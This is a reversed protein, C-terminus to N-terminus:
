GLKNFLARFIRKPLSVKQKASAAVPTTSPEVASVLEILGLAYCASFVSYVARYPVGLTTVTANISTSQNFWLAVIQMAHPAIDKRTFNPWRKLQIVSEASIHHPLWGRSSWLSLNWILERSARPNLRSLRQELFPHQEIVKASFLPQEETNIFSMKHLLTDKTESYVVEGQAMFTINVGGGTIQVPQEQSKALKYAQMFTGQLYSSPTYHLEASKAPDLYEQDARTGYFWQMSRKEEYADSTHENSGKSYEKAYGQLSKSVYLRQGSLDAVAPEAEAVKNLEDAESAKPAAAELEAFSVDLTLHTAPVVATTEPEPEQELQRLQHEAVLRDLTETLQQLNLPKKLWIAQELALEKMSVVICPMQGPAPKYSDWLQESNVCDLDLINLTGHGDVLTYGGKPRRSLYLALINKARESFGQLAVTTKKM